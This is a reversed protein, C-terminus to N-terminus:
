EEEVNDIADELAETWHCGGTHFYCDFEITGSEIERGRTWSTIEKDHEVEIKYFVNDSTCLVEDSEFYLDEYDVFDISYEKQLIQVSEKWTLGAPNGVHTLIEATGTIRQMESM